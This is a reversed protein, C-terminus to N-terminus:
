ILPGSRRGVLDANGIAIAGAVFAPDEADVRGPALDGPEGIERQVSELM